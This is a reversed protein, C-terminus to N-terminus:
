EVKEIYKAQVAPVTIQNNAVPTYSYSGACEGWVNIVDGQNVDVTEGYEIYINSTDSSTYTVDVLMWPIGAIEGMQSIKGTFKVFEGTHADPNKALVKYNVTKCKAKYAANSTTAATTPPETTTTTPPETTTTTPPEATTTTALVSTTTTTPMTTTTTPPATTTTPPATTVAPPGTTTTSATSGGCGVILLALALVLSSVFVRRM